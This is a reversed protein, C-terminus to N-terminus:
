DRAQWQERTVFGLNSSTIAGSSAGIMYIGDLSSGLRLYYDKGVEVNIEAQESHLNPLGLSYSKLVMEGHGYIVRRSISGGHRLIGIHDGNYFAWYEVGANVWSHDPRYINILSSNNDTLTTSQLKIPPAQCGILLYMSLILVSLKIKM